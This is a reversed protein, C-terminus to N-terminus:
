EEVFTSEAMLGLCILSQNMVSICQKSNSRLGHVHHTAFGLHIQKNKSSILSKVAPTRTHLDHEALRRSVTQRSLNKKMIANFERSVAAATKFRDAKM